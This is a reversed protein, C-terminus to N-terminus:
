VLDVLVFFGFKYVLYDFGLGGYMCILMLKECFVLGDLVWVLGEVDVFLCM